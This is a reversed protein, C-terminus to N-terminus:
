AALRRVEIGSQIEKEFVCERRYIQMGMHEYFDPANTFSHADTDLIVHKKGAQWFAEFATTLLARGAGHRRYRKRVFLSGIRGTDSREVVKANCLIGGVVEEANELMFCFGPANSYSGDQIFATATANWVTSAAPEKLPMTIAGWHDSFADDMAAGLSDWDHELDIPRLRMGSPISPAIPPSGLTTAYHLWTRVPKFGAQEFFAQALTEGEFFQTQLVIRIGPRTIRGTARVLGEGWALLEAGIGSDRYDPHVAVGTEYVVNQERNAVYAFGVPRGSPTVAVVCPSEAPVYRLLRLGGHANVVARVFGPDQSEQVNLLQVVTAADDAQYPRILYSTM